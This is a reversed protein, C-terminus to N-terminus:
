HGLEGPTACETLVGANCAASGTLPEVQEGGNGHFLTGKEAAVYLHVAVYLVMFAMLAAMVRFAIWDMRDLHEDTM